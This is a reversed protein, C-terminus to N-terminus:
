WTDEKGLDVNALPKAAKLSAFVEPSCYLNKKQSINM